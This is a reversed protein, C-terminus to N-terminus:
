DTCVAHRVFISSLDFITDFMIRGIHTSGLGVSSISCRCYETGAEGWCDFPLDGICVLRFVRVVCPASDVASHQKKKIWKQM